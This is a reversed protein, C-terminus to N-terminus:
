NPRLVTIRAHDALDAKIVDREEADKILPLLARAEDAMARGADPEGAIILARALGERASASQFPGLQGEGALAMAAKAHYLAPEARGLEAYVRAIQWEGIAWERAGGAVQWHARSAHAMHVMLDAEEASRNDQDLLTWVQNFFTIAYHRHEQRDMIEESDTPQMKVAKVGGAGTVQAELDSRRRVWAAKWDNKM